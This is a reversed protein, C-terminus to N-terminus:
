RSLLGLWGSPDLGVLILAMLLTFLASAERLDLDRVRRAGRREGLFVRQFSWWLGLGLLALPVLGLPVTWAPLRGAASAAWSGEWIAARSVFGVSGPVGALSLAALASVLALRPAPQALGGLALLDSGARRSVIGAALLACAGALAGATAELLAGGSGAGGAAAGALVLGGCAAASLAAQRRLDREGLAALACFLVSLLGWVWLALGCGGGLAEPCAPLALRALGLGGLLLSGGQFFALPAPDLGSSAAAPLWGHLGLLPLRTACALALAILLM